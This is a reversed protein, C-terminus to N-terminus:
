FAMSYADGAAKAGHLLHSSLPNPLTRLLKKLVLKPVRVFKTNFWMSIYLVYGSIGHAM